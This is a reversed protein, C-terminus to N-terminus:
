RVTHLMARAEAVMEIHGNNGWRFPSLPIPLYHDYRLEVVLEANHGVCDGNFLEKDDSFLRIKTRDQARKILIPLASSGPLELGVTNRKSVVAALCAAAAQQIADLKDQDVCAGTENNRPLQTQAARAACQAAKEVTLRAGKRIGLDFTFFIIILALVVAFMYSAPAMEGREDTIFLSVQSLRNGHM